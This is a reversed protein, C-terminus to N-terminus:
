GEQVEANLPLWHPNMSEILAEKKDRSWKKLEKERAIAHEVSSFREYYMLLHCFYKGAFTAPNGANESHEELRRAMDNTVGIYLTTKKPNTLIYVFYNHFKMLRLENKM